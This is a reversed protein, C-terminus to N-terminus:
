FTYGGIIRIASIDEENDLDNHEYIAKFYAGVSTSYTLKIGNLHMHEQAKSRHTNDSATRSYKGDLDYYNYRYDIRTNKLGIKQLDYGVQARYVNANRLSGMIFYSHSFGYTYSPFGGWAGLTASQGEGDTYKTAATEFSFGNNFEGYFKASIISYDIETYNNSALDGVEKYNVFQIGTNYSFENYSSSFNYEALFMNYLDAIYYEWIKLKHEDKEYEIAGYIIGSDNANKKDRSDVFSADSMSNFETGDDGSDWVGAMQYFYGLHFHFNNVSSNIYNIADFSNALFYYDDAEVLPTNLEQRGITLNHSEDKYSIFFEQVLAFSENDNSNFVLNKTEYIPDNIGFDTVGAFTSKVTFNNYTPTLISVKPVFYVGTSDRRGKNVLDSGKMEPPNSFDYNIYGARMDGLVKWDSGLDIGQTENASLSVISNALLLSVLLKKNLNLM